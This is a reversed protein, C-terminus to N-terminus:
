ILKHDIIIGYYKYNSVVEIQGNSILNEHSNGRSNIQLKEKDLKM